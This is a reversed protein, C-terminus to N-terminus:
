LPYLYGSDSADRTCGVSAGAPIQILVEFPESGDDPVFLFKELM